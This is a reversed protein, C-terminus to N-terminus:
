KNSMNVKSLNEEIRRIEEWPLATSERWSIQPPVQLILPADKKGLIHDLALQMHEFIPSGFTTLPVQFYESSALNDFGIVEVDEPIRVQKKRLEAILCGATVDGAFIMKVPYKERLKLYKEAMDKGAALRSDGNVDWAPIPCVCEWGALYGSRIMEPVPYWDMCIFGDKGIRRYAEFLERLLQSRNIGFRYIDLEMREGPLGFNYDIAFGRMGQLLPKLDAILAQDKASDAVESLTGFLMFDRVGAGKLQKVAPVLDRFGILLAERGAQELTNLAYNIAVMHKEECRNQSLLLGVPATGYRRLQRAGSNGVYGVQAAYDRVKQATAESIHYGGDKYRGSLCVSALTRSVGVAKAIDKLTIHKEHDM